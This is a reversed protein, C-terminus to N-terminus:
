GEHQKRARLLNRLPSYFKNAGARQPPKPPQASSTDPEPPADEAVALLTVEEPTEIPTERSSSEPLTESPLSSEELDMVRMAEQQTMWQSLTTQLLSIGELIATQRTQWEDQGEAIAEVQEVLEEHREHEVLAATVADQVADADAEVTITAESM